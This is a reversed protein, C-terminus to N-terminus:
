IIFSISHAEDLQDLMSGLYDSKCSPPRYMMGIAVNDRHGQLAVWVSEVNSISLDSIPVFQIGKRIYWPGAGMDTETRVYM